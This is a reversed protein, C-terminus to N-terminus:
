QLIFNIIENNIIQPQEHNIGHGADEIIKYKFGGDILIDIFEKKKEVKHGGILFYFKDKISIATEKNYKELSHIFMAKQNHNKMLLVLHDAIEPYRDFTDSNPSSLKKIIRIMNNKTPVLIEPFMMGLTSFIAKIPSIVMGGEM